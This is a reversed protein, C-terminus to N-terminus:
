LSEDRRDWPLALMSAPFRITTWRAGFDIRANALIPDEQFARSPPVPLRVYQPRWRDGTARRVLNIHLLLNGAVMQTWSDDPAGAFRHHLEVEGGVRTLWVKAGTWSPKLRVSADVAAGLTTSRGILNGYTGLEVPDVHRTVLLGLDPIGTARAASDVFRNAFLLSVLADPHELEDPRLHAREVLRDIPAGIRRLLAISSALAGARILPIGRDHRRPPM